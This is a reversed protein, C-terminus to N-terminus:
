GRDLAALTRGSSRGAPASPLGLRHGRVLNRSVLSKEFPDSDGSVFPLELLDPAVKPDIERAMRPDTDGRFDFLHRWDVVEESPVAEFGQNLVDDAGPPGFLLGSGFEDNIHYEFRPQSHGFRYVAGAFEVPMDAEEGAGVEYPERGELASRVADEVCMAPLYGHLVVWQYHWRVLQQADEFVEHADSKARPHGVVRNHFKLMATRLQSLIVNEDNRPDGALATGDANRLLDVREGADNEGLLLKEGDDARYPFPQAEPDAQRQLSSVPDLTIDHDIFQGLFVFGAPVTDSDGAPDDPTEELVGGPLGLERLFSVDHDAPLLNPCLRGFARVPTHPTAPSTGCGTTPNEALPWGVRRPGAATASPVPGPM